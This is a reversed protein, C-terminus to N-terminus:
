EILIKRKTIRIQEWRKYIMGQELDIQTDDGGAHVQHFVSSIAAQSIINQVLLGIIRPVYWQSDVGGTTKSLKAIKRLGM